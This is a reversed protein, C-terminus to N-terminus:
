VTPYTNEGLIALLELAHTLHDGVRRKEYM